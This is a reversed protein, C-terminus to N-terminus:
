YKRSDFYNLLNMDSQEKKQKKAKELLGMAKNIESDSIVGDGDLDILNKMKKFKEPLVCFKSDENFVYDALVVFSATIFISIYIDKTGMWAVSFILLERALSYKLYAEQTSSLNIQVYKSGFNLMLMVIGAFFKSNNLRSIYEDFKGLM